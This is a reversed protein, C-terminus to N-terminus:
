CLHEDLHLYAKFHILYICKLIRPILAIHNTSAYWYREIYTNAETLKDLFLLIIM